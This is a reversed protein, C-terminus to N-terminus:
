PYSNCNNDSTDLRVKLFSKNAFVVSLWKGEVEQQIVAGLGELCADMHLAFAKNPDAFVLIPAHTLYNIIEWFVKNCKKDSQNESLELPNYHKQECPKASEQRVNSKSRAPSTDGLSTM